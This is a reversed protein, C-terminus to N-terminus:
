TFEIPVDDTMLPLEDVCIMCRAVYAHVVLCMDTDFDYKYAVYVYAIWM